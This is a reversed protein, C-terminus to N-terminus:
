IVGKHLVRWLKGDGESQFGFNGGIGVIIQGVTVRNGSQSGSLWKSM